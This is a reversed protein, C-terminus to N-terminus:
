GEEQHQHSKHGKIQNDISFDTFNNRGLKNLTVEVHDSNVVYSTLHDLASDLTHLQWFFETANVVDETVFSAGESFVLEFEATDGKFTM